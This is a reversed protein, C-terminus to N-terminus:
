RPPNRSGLLSALTAADVPKTLHHDFGADNSRAKDSPHGYGSVAVLLPEPAPARERVMRAFAYGDIDPLGLDSLVVHAPWQGLITLAETAGHAVRVDHGLTAVLAGLMEAADPNDEVILVCKSDSAALTKRPGSTDLAISHVPLTVTFTAGKGPGASRASVEGDHLRVLGRVLALGLGLGGGTRALSREAQSFPEFLYRFLDRDIGCGEDRIEIVARGADLDRTLAVVVAKGRPTFKQANHLLNALAQSLRTVDARMWIREDGLETSLQIGAAIFSPAHDSVTAAVLAALDVTELELTLRDRTIRSVDLLDDVIRKMHDAQRALIQQVRVLSPDLRKTALLDAASKIPALPNRLEHALMALFEDKRASAERLKDESARRVEIEREAVEYLRAREIALGCQEALTTLFSLDDADLEVPGGWCFALVGLLRGDVFLPFAVVPGGHELGHVQALVPYRTNREGITRVIIPEGHRAAEAVPVPSEVPYSQWAEETAADVGKFGVNRLTKHDESVLAVVGVEANLAPMAEDIIVSAISTYSRARALAATLQQLVLLRQQVRALGDGANRLDLAM